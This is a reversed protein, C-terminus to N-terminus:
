LTPVGYAALIAQIQPALSILASDAQAKLERDTKSVGMAIDFTMPLRAEVSGAISTVVLPQSRRMIYRREGWPGRRRKQWRLPCPRGRVHDRRWAIQRRFPRVPLRVHNSRRFLACAATNRNALGRWRAFSVHAVALVLLAVILIPDLNWHLAGPAPVSGCYPTFGAV